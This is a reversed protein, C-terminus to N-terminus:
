FYIVPHLSFKKILENVSIKHKNYFIKFKGIDDCKHDYTVNRTMGGYHVVISSKLAKTKYGNIMIRYFLDDDECCMPHFIPDYYGIKNIISLNLIQPYVQRVNEYIENSKHREILLNMDDVEITRNHNVLIFPQVIATQEDFADLLGSIWLKPFLMDAHIEIMYDFNENKIENYIEIRPIVIGENKTNFKIWKPYKIESLFNKLEQNSGNDIIFFKFDYNMLDSEFLSNFCPKLLQLDNCTLLNIAIKM